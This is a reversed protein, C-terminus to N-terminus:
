TSEGKNARHRRDPAPESNTARIRAAGNRPQGGAVRAFRKGLRILARRAALSTHISTAKSGRRLPGPLLRLSRPSGVVSTPMSARSPYSPICFEIETWSGGAATCAAANPCIESSQVVLWGHPKERQSHADRRDPTGGQVIHGRMRGPLVFACHESPDMLLPLGWHPFARKRAKAVRRRRISWTVGSRCQAGSEAHELSGVACQGYSPSTGFESDVQSPLESRWRRATDIGITSRHQADNCHLRQV